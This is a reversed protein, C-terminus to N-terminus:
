KLYKLQDIYQPYCRQVFEIFPYHRKHIYAKEMDEITFLKDLEKVEEFFDPYRKLYEKEYIRSNEGTSFYGTDMNEKLIEGAKIGPIDKIVKYQKM